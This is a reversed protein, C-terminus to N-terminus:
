DDGFIFRMSMALSMAFLSLTCCNIAEGDVNKGFYESAGLSLAKLRLFDQVSGNYHMTNKTSSHLPSQFM